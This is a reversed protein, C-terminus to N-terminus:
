IRWRKKTSRQCRTLIPMVRGLCEKLLNTLIKSPMKKFIFDRRCTKKIFDRRCTKELHFGSSLIKKEFFFLVQRRLFFGNESAGSAPFDASLWLEVPDSTGLVNKM